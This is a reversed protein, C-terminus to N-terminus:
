INKSGSIGSDGTAVVGTKRDPLIILEEHNIGSASISNKANEFIHIDAVLLDMMEEHSVLVGIVNETDHPHNAKDCGADQVSAILAIKM